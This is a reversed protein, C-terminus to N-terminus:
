LHHLSHLLQFIDVLVEEEVVATLDPGALLEV